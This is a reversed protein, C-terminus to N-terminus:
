RNDTAILIIGLAAAVAVCILMAILSLDAGIVLGVTYGFRVLAAAAVFLLAGTAVRKMSRKTRRNLKM